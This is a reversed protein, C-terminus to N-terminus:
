EVGMAQLMKNVLGKWSLRDIQPRLHDFDQSQRAVQTDIAQVLREVFAPKDEEVAKDVDYIRPLSVYEIMGSQNIEDGLLSQLGEIETAIVRLNSALAEVCVLGLGEYYSPLIFIDHKRMCSAMRAQDKAGYIHLDEAFGALARLEEEQEPSANGVISLSLQPHKKKAIGYAKALEWVGKARSIKGCYFIKIETRQEKEEPYFLTPNFGGGLYIVPAPMCFYEHLVAMDKHSCAFYGDMKAAHPMHLFFRPHKKLQRIDTSHCICYVHPFVERVMNALLFVHHCLVIDPAFKEKADLLARMFATKWQQLQVDSMQSYVTSKYPMEDSMGAIPFPLEETNFQVVYQYPADFEWSFPAQNAYILGNEIGKNAMQEVVTSFYIGSGTKSPLQALVHLIKM